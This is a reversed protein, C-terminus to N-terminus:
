QITTVIAVSLAADAGTLTPVVALAQTAFSLGSPLGALPVMLTDTGGWCALIPSGTSVVGVALVIPGDLILDNVLFPLPLCSTATLSAGILYPAQLPANVRFTLTEGAVATFQRPTCDFVHCFEGGVGNQGQVQFGFVGPRVQAVAMPTAILAILIGCWHQIRM